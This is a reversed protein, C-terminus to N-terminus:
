CHKGEVGVTPPDGQGAEAVDLDPVNAVGGGLRDVEGPVGLPDMLTAKLGSPVRSAVPPKSRVTLSQSGAGARSTRVSWPWLPKTRLTAKLGSPLSRAEALSCRADPQPLHRGAALQRGEVPWEDTTNATAKWGSPRRM